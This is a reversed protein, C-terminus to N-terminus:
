NPYIHLTVGFKRAFTKMGEYTPSSNGTEYRNYQITRIGMIKAMQEQTKGLDTRVNFMQKGITM